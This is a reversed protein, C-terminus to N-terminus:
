ATIENILRSIENAVDRSNSAMPMLRIPVGVGHINWANGDSTPWVVVLVRSGHNALVRLHPLDSETHTLDFAVGLRNLNSAIALADEWLNRVLTTRLAKTIVSM